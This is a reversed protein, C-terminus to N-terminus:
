GVENIVYDNVSKWEASYISSYEFWHLFFAKENSKRRWFFMNEYKLILLNM